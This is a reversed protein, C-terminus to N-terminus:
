FHQVALSILGLHEYEVALNFHAFMKTYNLDQIEQPLMRQKNTELYQALHKLAKTMTEAAEEHNNMESLIACKNIYTSSM